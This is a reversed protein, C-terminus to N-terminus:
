SPLELTPAKGVRAALLYLRIFNATILLNIIQCLVVVYGPYAHGFHSSYAINLEQYSSLWFIINLVGSVGIAFTAGAILEETQGGRSNFLTIQPLVAVAELYLAATWATDTLFFNNLTPHFLQM